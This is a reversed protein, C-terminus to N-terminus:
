DGGEICLAMPSSHVHDPPRSLFASDSAWSAAHVDVEWDELFQGVPMDGTVYWRSQWLVARILERARDESQALALCYGSTYHALVDDGTWIYLSLAPAPTPWGPNPNIPM